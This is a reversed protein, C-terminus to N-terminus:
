PSILGFTLAKIVAQENNRAGLKERASRVQKDVTSSATGLKHAIVKTTKGSALWCLVEIERPTLPCIENMHNSRTFEDFMYGIKIIDNQNSQWIKEFDKENVNAVCLGLGGIGSQNFRIPISVGVEMGFACSDLMLEKQRSTPNGWQTKNHWIFPNTKTICHAATLDDDIYFSGDFYETYEKPHDIMHCLSEIIGEEKARQKINTDYTTGYFASTIGFNELSGRMKKWLDDLNTASNFLEFTTLEINM